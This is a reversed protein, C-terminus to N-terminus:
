DFTKNASPSIVSVTTGQWVTAMSFAAMSFFIRWNGGMIASAGSTAMSVGAGLAHIQDMGRAYQGTLGGDHCSELSPSVNVRTSSGVIEHTWKDSLGVTKAWDLGYRTTMDTGLGVTEAYM